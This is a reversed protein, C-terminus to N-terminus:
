SEETPRPAGSGALEEMRECHARYEALLRGSTAKKVGTAYVRAKLHWWEELGETAVVHHFLSRSRHVPPISEWVEDTLPPVVENVLFYYGEQLEYVPARQGRIPRQVLTLVGAKVLLEKCRSVESYTLDSKGVIWTTAFIFRPSGYSLAEEIFPYVKETKEALPAKRTHVARVAATVAETNLHLRM